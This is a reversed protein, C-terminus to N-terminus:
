AFVCCERTQLVQLGRQEAEQLATRAPSVIGNVGAQVALVDLAARYPGHPRMCGLGLRVRPLLRRAEALLAAVAEVAPPTASAYRTGLTPILVLFVTEEPALEALLRLAPREHGLKGGRLGITVHPVVRFRRRLMQYTGVYDAVRAELGYVERITDDDGVMDFSIVDVYPAIRDAEEENVLGVHWNLKRGPRLERVVALAERTVPVRGSPDCGGSILLSTAGRAQELARRVPVMHALYHGGCHACALACHEGTLSINATDLPYSAQLTPPFHAQRVAWAQALQQELDAPAVPPAGITSAVADAENLQEHM